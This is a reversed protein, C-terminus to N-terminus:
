QKATDAPTVPMASAELLVISEERDSADSNVGTPSATREVLPRHRKAPPANPNGRAYFSKLVDIAEVARVGGICPFHYPLHVLSAGSRVEDTQGDVATNHDVTVHQQQQQQQQPPTNVNLVSGCGGFRENACGYVVRGIHVQVLASACM